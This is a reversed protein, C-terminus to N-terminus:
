VKSASNRIDVNPPMRFYVHRGRGSIAEVTSPLAGHTAELKRLEAEADAGDVDGVFIGSITGTAIAINYNPDRRWWRGVAEPDKTADLLGHATSPSKSKWRCPFIAFGQQALALAAQLM